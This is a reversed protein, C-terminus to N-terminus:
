TLNLIKKKFVAPSEGATKKFSKQFTMYNIFGVAYSISTASRKKDHIMLSIAERIRFLNVYTNFNMGIHENLLQSLQHRGLNIKVALNELTLEDNLYPKHVTMEYDLLIAMDEINYNKLLDKRAEAKEIIARTAQFLGSHQNNMVQIYGLSLSLFAIGLKIFLYNRAIVGTLIFTFTVAVILLLMMIIRAPLDKKILEIAFLISFGRVIFIFYIVSIVFGISFSVTVPSISYSEFMSIALSRKYDASNFYYPLMIGSSIVFPLFHIIDQRKIVFSENMLDRYLFYILPGFLSLFPPDLENLHPFKLEMNASVNWISLQTLTLSLYLFFLLYDRQTKSTKTIQSIAMLLSLGFGIIIVNDILNIM